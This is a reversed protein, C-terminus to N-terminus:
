LTAEFLDKYSKYSNKLPINWRVFYPATIKSPDFEIRGGGLTGRSAYIFFNYLIQGRFHINFFKEIENLFLKYRETIM